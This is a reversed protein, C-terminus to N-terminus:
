LKEFKILDHETPVSSESVFEIYFAGNSTSILFRLIEKYVRKIDQNGNKTKSNIEQQTDIQKISINLVNEKYGIKNISSRCKENYKLYKPESHLAYIKGSKTIFEIMEENNELDIQTIIESKFEELNQIIIM